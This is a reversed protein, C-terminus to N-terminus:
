LVAVQTFHDLFGGSASCPQEPWGFIGDAEVRDSAENTRSGVSEQAHKGNTTFVGEFCGGRTPGTFRVINRGPM